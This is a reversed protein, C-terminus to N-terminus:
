AHPAMEKIKALIEDKTKLGDCANVIRTKLGAAWPYDSFGMRKYEESRVIEIVGVKTLGAANFQREPRKAM